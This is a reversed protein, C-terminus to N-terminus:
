KMKPVRRRSLKISGQLDVGICLVQIQQGIRLHQNVKGFNGTPHSDSDDSLESVHLLGEKNRLLEIIAGFDKIEIVTGDYVEGEVVDAVLDMVASRAKSVMDPNAGYLLCQGEQTLDLSVGFRDELQRLVAGGPGILDRKRLPDFRVIAVRPSSDKLVSRPSLDSLIGCSAEDSLVSMQDLIANRGAKALDLAELLTGMPLPEKVDLQLATVGDRTGAVKFDCAGYHDETGTIDVLLCSSDNGSERQEVFNSAALGISVGAVPQAIPIGADLLALTAGCVTAMSSSGNSGMVESTVRVTYPFEEPPPLTSRLAKEALAGHGIARRNAAMGRGPVEGTSFSPFDYHLFFRRVEDLTGSQGTLEAEAKVKRSNLDSLLAEQSRLYRLSGVPLDDYPGRPINSQAETGASRPDVTEQFPNNKVVGDVPAGLTATCLVQTDGRAFIASGHVSDPLAPVTVSLPRIVHCGNAGDGGREDGRTQYRSATELLAAKLLRSHIARALMSISGSEEQVLAEYEAKLREDQPAFDDKLMREVETFVLHERRGRTSKPLLPQDVPHVSVVGLNTDSLQRDKGDYGFLRLANDGMRAHCYEYAEDVIRSADEEFTDVPAGKEDHEDLPPLGLDQRLMRDDKDDEEEVASILEDQVGFIPGLASHAVKMLKALTDEPIKDTPSSCEMMVVETRTGAYLLEALSDEVQKPTPDM